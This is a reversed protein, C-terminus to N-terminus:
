AFAASRGTRRKLLLLSLGAGGVSILSLSAPLPLANSVVVNSVDVTNDSGVGSTTNEFVIQTSSSVATFTLGNTTFDSTSTTPNQSAILANNLANNVLTEMTADSNNISRQAAVYSLTYTQGLVTAIVQSIASGTYGSADQMFAFDTVGSMSTPAFPIDSGSTFSTGTGNLGVPYGTTITWGTPSVPNSPDSPYFNSSYGPFTVYSGANASFNGNTILNARAEQSSLGLTAIAAASLASARVINRFNM